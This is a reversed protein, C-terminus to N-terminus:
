NLIEERGFMTFDVDKFGVNRKVQSTFGDGHFQIEWTDQFPTNVFAMDFYLTNNQTCGKMAIKEFLGSYLSWSKLQTVEKESTLDLIGHTFNDKSLAATSWRGGVELSLMYKEVEGSAKNLSVKLINFPNNSVEYRKGIVHKPITLEHSNSLKEEYCCEM